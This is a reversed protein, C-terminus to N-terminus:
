WLADNTEHVRCSLRDKRKYSNLV